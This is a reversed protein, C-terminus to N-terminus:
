RPVPPPVIFKQGTFVNETTILAPVAITASGGAEKLQLTTAIVCNPADGPEATRVLPTSTFAHLFLAHSSCLPPAARVWPDLKAGQGVAPMAPDLYM